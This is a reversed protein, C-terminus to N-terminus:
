PGISDKKGERVSVWSVGMAISGWVFVDSRYESHHHQGALIWAELAALTMCIQTPWYIWETRGFNHLQGHRRLYITRTLFGVTALVSFMGFLVSIPFLNATLQVNAFSSTTM